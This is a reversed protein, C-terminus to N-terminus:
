NSPRLESNAECIYYMQDCACPYDNWCGGAGWNLMACNEISTDVCEGGHGNNPENACWNEFGVTSSDEWQWNGESSDDTFGLWWRNATAITVATDTAWTLEDQSDFTVLRYGSDICADAAEYWTSPETCFLYPHMLDPYYEVACPCVGGDDATDSCDNDLGDCIEVAGPNIQTHSDNCDGSQEVWGPEQPCVSAASATTGWGDGDYDQYRTVLLGEDIQSDCNNDLDDCIEEAGPFILDNADDCDENEPVGDGDADISGPDSSDDDDVDSATSDDDDSVGATSDDDDPRPDGFLGSTDYCGGILLSVLLSLQALLLKARMTPDREIKALTLVGQCLESWSM